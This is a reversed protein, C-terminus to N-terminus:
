LVAPLRKKRAGGAYTFSRTLACMRERVARLCARARASRAPAVANHARARVHIHTRARQAHAPTGQARAHTGAYVFVDAEVARGAARRPATRRAM